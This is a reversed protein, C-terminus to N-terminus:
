TTERLKDFYGFLLFALVVLFITPMLAPGSKLIMENFGAHILIAGAVGWVIKKRSWFYGLFGSAIAHMLTAGIFRLLALNVLENMNMAASLFFLLNEMTAFGLSATIMYIMRDILEDFFRSKRIFIWIVGFKISEEILSNVVLSIRSYDAIGWAPSNMAFIQECAIAVWASALGLVFTAFLLSKPEPHEDDELLFFSLWVIGLILGIGGSILLKLFTLEM